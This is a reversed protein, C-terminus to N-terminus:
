EYLLLLRQSKLTNKNLLINIAQQVGILGNLFTYNEDWKMKHRTFFRKPNELNSDLENLWFDSKIGTKSNIIKEMLANGSNGHCLCNDISLTDEVKKRKKIKTFIEKFVQESFLEISHSKLFCSLYIYILDGYCWAIRSKVNKSYDDFHYFSSFSYVPNNNLKYITELFTVCDEITNDIITNNTHKKLLTLIIIIGPLGHPIGLNVRNPYISSDYYVLSNFEKKHNSFSKLFRLIFDSKNQIAQDNQLLVFVVGLSGHLFDWNNLETQRLAWKTVIDEIFLLTEDDLVGEKNNNKLAYELYLIGTIGDCLSYVKDINEYFDLAKKVLVKLQEYYFINDTQLFKDLFYISLSFDSNYLSTSIELNNNLYHKELIDEIASLKLSLSKM